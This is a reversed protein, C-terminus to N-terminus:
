LLQIYAMRNIRMAKQKIVKRCFVGLQRKYITYLIYIEIYL